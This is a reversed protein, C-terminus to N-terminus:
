RVVMAVSWGNAKMWLSLPNVSSSPGANIFIIYLVTLAWVHWRTFVRTVISWGLRRRPARGVVAMRRQALLKDEPTFFLSRSNEPLDPILFFGALCIPLSIVGDQVNSDAVTGSCQHPCVTEM